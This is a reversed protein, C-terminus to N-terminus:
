DVYKAERNRRQRPGHDREFSWLGVGVVILLLPWLRVVSQPVVNITLLGLRVVLALTGISVLLAGAIIDTNHASNPSHM